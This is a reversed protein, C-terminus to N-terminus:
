PAVPQELQGYGNSGVCHMAGGVDIGCIHNTGVALAGYPEDPLQEVIGGSDGWCVASGSSRIGCSYTDAVALLEFKGFPPTAQGKDNLGWCHAVNEM